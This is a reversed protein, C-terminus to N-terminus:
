PCFFFFFFRTCTHVLIFLTRDLGLSFLYHRPCTCTVKAKVLYCTLNQPPLYSGFFSPHFVFQSYASRSKNVSKFIFSDPSVDLNIDEGLREMCQIVKSMLKINQKPMECSWREAYMGYGDTMTSLSNM